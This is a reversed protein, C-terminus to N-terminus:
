SSVLEEIQTNGTTDELPFNCHAYEGFLERAKKDYAKAAEEPTPFLGLHIAKGGIGIQARWKMRQQHWDVGKFLSSTPKGLYNQQKRRNSLNQANTVIRLNERRNDRGDHNIHDVAPNQGSPLDLVFRHMYQSPRRGDVDRVKRQACVNKISGDKRRQEHACWKFQAVREYDCESVLAVYGKSLPIERAGNVRLALSDRETVIEANV